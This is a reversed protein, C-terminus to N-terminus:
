GRLNLAAPLLEFSAPLRGPQEGDVDLLVEDGRVPRAVVQRGRSEAVGRMGLHAGKYVKSANALFGIPRWGWVRVVDFQGDDVVAHPAIQMGGGFFQGNAVACLTLELESPEGGDVSIAVPCNRYRFIARATELAYAVRGGSSRANVARVVMGSVGFSSINVFIRRRERGEHDVFTVRGVDIRRGASGAIADIRAQLSDQSCLSRGLDSGTGSGIFAFAAATALPQSEADFFGNVVENNTGDGGIAIVLEAGGRVADRALTTAHEPGETLRAQLSPWTQRLAREMEPWGRGTAGLKSRPNVVVTVHQEMSRLRWG